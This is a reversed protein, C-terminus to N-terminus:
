GGDGVLWAAVDQPTGIERDDRVRRNLGDRVDELRVRRPALQEVWNGVDGVALVDPILVDHPVYFYPGDLLSRYGSLGGAAYVADVQPEWFATLLAIHAGAPEAATPLTEADLPAALDRDAPNADVFAEGWLSFKAKPARTRLYALVTRVDCVQRGLMTEGLMWLSASRSTAGGTRGRGEGAPQLEGTGYLDPLVVWAGRRVLAEVAEPRHHLFGAKGARSLGVVVRTPATTPDAHERRVIVLPLPLDVDHRRRDLRVREVVIGEALPRVDVVAPRVDATPEVSGLLEALQDRLSGAETKLALQTVHERLAADLQPISRGASVCKLDDGPRTTTYEASPAPLGFWKELLPHLQSRHLPGINTCHSAEPAKGKVNGRGVVFSLRDPVEYWQFVQQLRRWVPDRPQDWRFEHAYVLHRPATAAVISWPLFGDRASLRLNRTSEWSGSGAFDFTAEADDPLPYVDEPEYGGFNFPVALVIRRDLAAAIGVPDGGGAVAGMMAIRNADVDPRQTLLDVGRILDGVMWGALSEGLLNLQVGTNFRFYYDQREPKYTGAYAGSKAFAHTRREGHGLQDMVLVVAGQRAWTMGMVQLEGQTKPAHHSHCLVIGPRGTGAQASRYLNAAVVIGPRSTFLVNEVVFGDGAFRGTVEVDVPGGPAPLTGLSRRLAALRTDRFREWDDRSQLRQWAATERQNVARLLNRTENRVAERAAAVEVLVTEDLEKLQAAVSSAHDNPRSDAAKAALPRLVIERVDMVAAAKKSRPKLTLSYRGPKPLEVAGAARPVFNQFHGTDEVTMVLPAVVERGDPDAVLVEVVSGGQGKGCGQLIEVEFRGPKAVSFDWRAYDAANTWFGLTNKHIAPEFRLQSGFVETARCGLTITGDPGAVSGRYAPNPTPLLAGVERRWADLQQALKEVIAPNEAAVNRTERPDQALDFLERRNNEYFEILKWNGSRVAGGPRAGQNPYHPYHWHLAARNLRGDGRLLPALDLGDNTAPREAGCLGAITTPLDCSWVPTDDTRGPKRVGAGRIILPVRIGGEYLYGKGDRLPANTTAPTNPGEVVSLGGNDSTFLILTDDSLKLEALKDVVRGVARDVSELMAAYIPNQQTPGPKRGENDFTAIMDAPAQMPTHVGYHPLYLFFPREANAAIFKEAEIGLRDTLYQGAPAAELGPMLRPSEGIRQRKFPAFYSLPSGTHDGAINVDFGQDQPAFGVGGLHWKGIHGTAYGRAKLREAITVEALDLQQKLAPRKVRQDPRDDRGPLWDTIGTRAPVKGTMLAARTPSCVPAAAYAQTFRVGEEALRDLRPTRHFTSGYCGLDHAGLDDVVILVVNPPREAATATNLASLLWAVVLTSRFM